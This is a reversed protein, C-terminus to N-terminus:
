LSVSVAARLATGVAVPFVDFHRICTYQHAHLISRLTLSRNRMKGLAPESPHEAPADRRM